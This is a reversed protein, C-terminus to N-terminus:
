IRKLREIQEASGWVRWSVGEAEFERDIRTIGLQKLRYLMRDVGNYPTEFDYVIEKVYPVTNAEAIVNKAALSYARVMGGTGLKTGGFYRVILVACNILDEGRLVNLIPVGACGRPEGDDTSNEVIQDHNNLYRLSYVVHSAKPHEVKLRAQLGDFEAFPVLHAIFKSRTVETTATTTSQITKM